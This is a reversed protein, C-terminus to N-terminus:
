SLTTQRRQCGDCCSTMTREASALVTLNQMRGAALGADLQRWTSARCRGSTCRSLSTRSQEANGIGLILLQGSRQRHDGGVPEFPLRAVNMLAWTQGTWSALVPLALMPGCNCLVLRGQLSGAGTYSGPLPQATGALQLWRSGKWRWTTDLPGSSLGAHTCCGEAILSRTIPDYAMPLDFASPLWPGTSKCCGVRAAGSGRKTAAPRQGAATVLVMERLADDWAM